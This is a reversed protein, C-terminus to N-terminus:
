NWKLIEERTLRKASNGRVIIIEMIGTRKLRDGIGSRLDADSITSEIHLIVRNAQRNAKRLATDIAGKTGSINTKIEWLEGIKSDKWYIVADATKVGRETIRGLLIIRCGWMDVLIKSAALNQEEEKPIIDYGRIIVGGNSSAYLVKRTQKKEM